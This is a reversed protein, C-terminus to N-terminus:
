HSILVPLNAHSLVYQTTGGMLRERFVSHECAGMVLMGADVKNCYTLIEAGKKRSKAERRIREVNIGHRELAIAVDIGDLPARGSGDEISVVDVKQKSELLQMADTVARTASRHGDWAIVATEKIHEPAHGRPIVLVPRGSKLAIQEPHLEMSENGHIADYRGVLTLDYLRAYNAVTADSNGFLSIWHLNEGDISDGVIERFRKEVEQELNAVAQSITQRVSEPVLSHTSLRERQGAHVLLGTVHCGYKRHMLIATRLAAESSDTGNFAVLINKIAM